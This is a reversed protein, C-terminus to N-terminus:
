SIREWGPGWPGDPDAEDEYPNFDPEETRVIKGDVEEVYHGAVYGRGYGDIIAIGGGSGSLEAVV